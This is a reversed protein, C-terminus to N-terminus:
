AVAGGAEGGVPVNWDVLALTDPNGEIQVLVANHVIIVVIEMAVLDIEKVPVAEGERENILVAVGDIFADWLPPVEGKRDVSKLLSERLIFV